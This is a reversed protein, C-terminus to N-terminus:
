KSYLEVILQEQIEESIDERKPMDIITGTFKAADLSLWKPVGRRESVKISELIEKNKRSKERLQIKQEKGVLFSPINVRRGDVSFHGHRVFQRAQTRSSCLGLRFVINDLRRELLVLLNEGTIGRQREATAFYGRFQRELVGYMRKVKQKERLQLGYDSRKSRRQGHQGPAYNRREIACKDTYCRDGKLYLKTGEVRCLRCVPGTYRAM